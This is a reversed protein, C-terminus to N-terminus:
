QSLREGKTTKPEIKFGEDERTKSVRAFVRAYSGVLFADKKKSTRISFQVTDHSSDEREFASINKTLDRNRDCRKMMLCKKVLTARKRKTM